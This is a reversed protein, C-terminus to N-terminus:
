ASPIPLSRYAILQPYMLILERRLRGIGEAQFVGSFARREPSQFDDGFVESNESSFDARNRPPLFVAESEFASASSKAGTELPDKQPRDPPVDRRGVEHNSHQHLVVNSTQPPPTRYLDFFKDADRGTCSTRRGRLSTCTSTITSKASSPNAGGHCDAQIM